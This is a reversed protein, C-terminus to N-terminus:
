NHTEFWRNLCADVGQKYNKRVFDLYDNEDGAVALL